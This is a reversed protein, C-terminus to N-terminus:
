NAQLSGLDHNTQLIEAVVEFSKYKPLSLTGLLPLVLGQFPCFLEPLGFLESTESESLANVRIPLM